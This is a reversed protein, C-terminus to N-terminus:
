HRKEVNAMVLVDASHLRICNRGEEKAHYLAQDAFSVLQQWNLKEGHNTAVGFSATVSLTTNDELNFVPQAIISRLKEAIVMATKASTNPLLLTFEEGGYRALIDYQRLSNKLRLSFEKLVNDGVQHGYKDNVAKFFDIDMLILSLPTKERQARLIIKEANEDFARRNYLQTLSDITALTALKNALQQSAGITLSFFSTVVVLQLAILSLGHAIGDSMFDDLVPENIVFYVRWLFIASCVLFSCGLMRTFILLGKEQHTLIKLGIYLSQGAILVSIIIIRVNINSQIYTFYIFSLILVCLLTLSVKQFPKREYKLFRLIGIILLSFGFFIVANSIVISVFDDIYHRLAFLIYGISFLFYSYGLARFGRFSSHIHAFLFSGIGLFIGLVLNTLALTRIDLGEM